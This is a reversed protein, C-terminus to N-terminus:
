DGLREHISGSHSVERGNRFGRAWCNRLWMSRFGQIRGVLARWKGDMLLLRRGINMFPRKM